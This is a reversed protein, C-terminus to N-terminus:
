IQNRKIIDNSTIKPFKDLTTEVNLFSCLRKFDDDKSVNLVILKNERSKFYDKVNENYNTYHQKLISAEYPENDETSYVYKMFKHAYGLQRYKAQKLDTSNPIRNGDAWLKSHFKTLSEYWQEVSDRETLIFKADKFVMDLYQYTYPLSFPIDQFAEATKCYKAISKFDRQYWSELLLEGQVQNGMKYGFGKLVAEITTTGTKNQGICFVKNQKSFVM